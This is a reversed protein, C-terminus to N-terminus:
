VPKNQFVPAFWIATVGLRELYDLRQTLGKLDGGHFFGKHEPDYGTELRDGVFDGRDNSPDGNEFRDPLVFYVIEESPLRDRFNTEGASDQAQAPSVSALGLTLLPLVFRTM